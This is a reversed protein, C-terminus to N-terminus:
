GGSVHSTSKSSRSRNKKQYGHLEEDEETIPEDFWIRRLRRIARQSISAATKEKINLLEGIEFFLMGKLRYQIVEKELGHLYEDIAFQLWEQEEMLQLPSRVQSSFEDFSDVGVEKKYDERAKLRPREACYWRIKQKAYVQFPVGRSPDYTRAALVLGVCADGYQIMDKVRERPGVWERCVQYPICMWEDILSNDVM